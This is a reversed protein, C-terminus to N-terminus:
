IYIGYEVQELFNCACLENIAEISNTYNSNNLFVIEAISCPLQKILLIQIVYKASDSLKDYVNSLCFEILEDQSNVIIDPNQGKGVNIVFWKICLPSFYLKEIYKKIEEDSIEDLIKVDYVTVLKRFYYLAEKEDFSPLVLRSEYERIGIRSTILIKSGLPLDEFLNRIDESNITELNDLILLTKYVNMYFLLMDITTTGERKLIENEEICKTLSNFSNKIEKFEGDLLAKTKLSVWIVKEFAFTNEDMIDYICSLVTSTKGIGGDGIISIISHASNLKKIIKKKIEERGVFGGNSSWNKCM